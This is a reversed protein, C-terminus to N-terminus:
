GEVIYSVGDDNNDADIYVASANAVYVGVSEGAGLIFGNTNDVSSDGIFIDGANDSMAKIILMFGHPIDVDAAIVQATGAADVTEQGYKITSPNSGGGGGSVGFLYNLFQLM